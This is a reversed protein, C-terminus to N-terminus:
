TKPQAQMEFEFFNGLDAMTSFRLFISTNLVQNLYKHFETHKSM